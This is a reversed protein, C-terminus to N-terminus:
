KEMGLRRAFFDEMAGYIELWSEHLLPEHVENPVVLQEFDVDHARLEGVLEAFQSFPVNRDDDPQILLIPSRWTKMAAVPSSALMTAARADSGDIYGVQILLSRWNHVGAFDAGAALLDSLNALGLATMFGGYSHGWVGVRSADVDARDRLYLAAARIDNLESGGNISFNQPARFELGYGISGRYNVSLVLYGRTALYLCNAYHQAEASWTLQVQTNPGGHFYLLAPHRKAPSSAPPLFLQGRLTLGDQSRLTVAQPGRLQSAPFDAPMAGPALARVAGKALLVSPQAPSAGGSQMAVITKGDHTVLPTDESSDGRTLQVPAGGTSAVRWLHRRETDGANASYIVERGAATLTAAFVEFEGVALPRLTGDRVAVTYLNIWGSKEWPFVIRDDAAWLLPSTTAMSHPAAFISGHGPDARWVARGRGTQADAVWISWPTRTARAGFLDLGGTTRVFAIQKSDPSWSPKSDQDSSPALWTISQRAFDYVGIFAHDGRKSSFALRAGDPSWVPLPPRSFFGGGSTGNDRILQHPATQGDLGVVWIQGEHVYAVLDGRPSVAAATGVALKRPTSGAAIGVAWIETQPGGQPSSTPNSPPNGLRSGFDLTSGRTYVVTEGRADWALEGLDYGVDGTYSTIARASHDGSANREAIWVNRSGRTSYVWAVRGSDPAGVLSSAFPVSMVQELTVGERAEVRLGCLALMTTVVGTMVLGLKM